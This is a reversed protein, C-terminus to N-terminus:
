NQNNFKIKTQKKTIMLSNELHDKNWTKMMLKHIKRSRFKMKIRLMLTLSKAERSYKLLKELNIMIRNNWQYETTKNWRISIVKYKIKIIITIRMTARIVIILINGQSQILYIDVRIQFVTLNFVKLIWLIRIWKKLIHRIKNSVMTNKTTLHIKKSSNWIMTKTQPNVTKPPQWKTIKASNIPHNTTTSIRNNICQIKMRTNNWTTIRNFNKIRIIIKITGDVMKLMTIMNSIKAVMIRIKVM